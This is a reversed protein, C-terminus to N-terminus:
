VPLWLIARRDTLAYLGIGAPAPRRQSVVALFILAALLVFFFLHGAKSGFALAAIVLVAILTLALGLWPESRAPHHSRGTWVLHEGAALEDSIRLRMAPSLDDNLTSNM